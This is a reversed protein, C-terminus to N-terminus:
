LADLRQLTVNASEVIDEYITSSTVKDKEKIQKPPAFVLSSLTMLSLKM